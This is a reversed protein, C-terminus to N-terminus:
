QMYQSDILSALLQEMEELDYFKSYGICNPCYNERCYICSYSDESAAVVNKCKLCKVAISETNQVIMAMNLSKGSNRHKEECQERM